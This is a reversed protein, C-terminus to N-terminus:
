GAGFISGSASLIIGPLEPNEVFKSKKGAVRDVARLPAIRALPREGRSFAVRAIM